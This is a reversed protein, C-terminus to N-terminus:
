RIFRAELYYRKEEAEGMSFTKRPMSGHAAVYPFFDAKDLAPMRVGVANERNVAAAREADGHIYDVTGGYQNIYGDVYAQADRYADVTGHGALQPLGRQFRATDVGYVARHIPAFTLGGDYINVIEALAYRAPHSIQKDKPLTKKLNEWVTKAAALSHNGDGVAMIFGGDAKEQLAALAGDAFGNMDVRWGTIRGGKMNLDFDYLPQAGGGKVQAYLQEVVTKHPDDLLIMIHPLEVSANERIAVRPPIRSLITGESARVAAKAGAEFSYRELDVSTLLGLRVNGRATQRRVLVACDPYETFVGDEAYRRLTANIGARRRSNDDTLYIEPLV